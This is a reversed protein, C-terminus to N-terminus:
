VGRGFGDVDRRVGWAVFEGAESVAAAAGAIGLVAALGTAGSVAAVRRGRIIM